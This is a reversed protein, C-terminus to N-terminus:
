WKLAAGPVTLSHFRFDLPLWAIEVFISAFSCHMPYKETPAACDCWPKRPAREYSRFRGSKSRMPPSADSIRGTITKIKSIQNALSLLIRCELKWQRTGYHVWGWLERSVGVNMHFCVRPACFAGSVVLETCQPLVVFPFRRVCHLRRAGSSVKLSAQIAVSTWIRWVECEFM